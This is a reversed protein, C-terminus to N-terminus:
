LGQVYRVPHLQLQDALRVAGLTPFPVDFEEVFESPLGARRAADAEQKVKARQERSAAYTYAARRQADCDIGYEAVLEAIREVGALSADAYVAAAHQDHRRLITSYITSQLASVKATTCGTVGRGIRGADLVAVRAGDNRLQLATTLGAVGGGIVAVDIELDGALQPYDTAPATALWLSHTSSVTEPM